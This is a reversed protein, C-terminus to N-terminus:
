FAEYLYVDPLNTLVLKRGDELPWTLRKAAMAELKKLVLAEEVNFRDALGALTVPKLKCLSALLMDTPIMYEAAWRRAKLEAKEYRIQGQLSVRRQSVSNWSCTYYHGIEEALVSRYKRPIMSITDSILIIGVGDSIHFVGSLGHPLPSYELTIGENEVLNHLTETAVM